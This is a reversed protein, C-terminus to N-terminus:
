RGLKTWRGTMVIAGKRMAVDDAEDSCRVRGEITMRASLLPGPVTSRRLPRDRRRQRQRLRLRSPAGGGLHPAQRAFPRVLRRGARPRRVRGRVPRPSVHGDRGRRPRPRADGRRRCDEARHLLAPAM